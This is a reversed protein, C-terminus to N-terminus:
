SDATLRLLPPPRALPRTPGLAAERRAAELGRRVINRFGLPTGAESAFVHDTPKARSCALAEERELVRLEGRLREGRELKQGAGDGLRM